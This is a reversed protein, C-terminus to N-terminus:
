CPMGSPFCFGQPTAPAPAKKASLHASVSGAAFSASSLAFLGALAIKKLMYEGQPKNTKDGFLRAADRTGKPSYL